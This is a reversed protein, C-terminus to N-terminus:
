YFGIRGLQNRKQNPKKSLHCPLKKIDDTLTMKIKQYVFQCRKQIKSWPLCSFVFKNLPNPITKDIFSILEPTQYIKRTSFPDL